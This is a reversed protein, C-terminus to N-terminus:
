AKLVNTGLTICQLHYYNEILGIKIIKKVGVQMREPQLNGYFDIM